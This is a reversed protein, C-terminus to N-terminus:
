PSPALQRELKARCAEDAAASGPGAPTQAAFRRAIRDADRRRSELHERDVDRSVDIHRRPESVMECVAAPRTLAMVILTLVLVCFAFQAPGRWATKNHITV